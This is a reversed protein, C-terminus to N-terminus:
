FFHPKGVIQRRLFWCLFEMSVMESQYSRPLAESQNFILLLVLVQITVLITVPPDDLSNWANHMGLSVFTFHTMLFLLRILSAKHFIDKPYNPPKVLSLIANEDLDRHGTYGVVHWVSTHVIWVRIRDLYLVSNM